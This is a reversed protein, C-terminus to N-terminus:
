RPLHRRIRALMQASSIGPGSRRAREDDRAIKEAHERVLEATLSPGNKLCGTLSAILDEPDRRLEVIRDALAVQIRHGPKWGLARRVAAPITVRGRADVSVVYRM